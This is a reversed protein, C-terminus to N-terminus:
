ELMRIADGDEAEEQVEEGQSSTAMAMTAQIL